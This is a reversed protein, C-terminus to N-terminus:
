YEMKMSGSNGIFKGNGDLIYIIFYYTKSPISLNIKMDALPCFIRYDHFKASNSSPRFFSSFSIAYGSSDKLYNGNADKIYVIFRCNQGMCNNIVFGAHVYRGYVGNEYGFDDIWSKKIEADSAFSSILYFVFSLLLKM